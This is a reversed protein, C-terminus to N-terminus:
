FRFNLNKREKFRALWGNSGTFSDFGEIKAIDVAKKQIIPGNIPEGLEIRADIWELLMEELRAFPAARHTLLTSTPDKAYDDRLRQEDKIITHLSSMPIGYLLKLESQTKGLRWLDLIEIKKQLSLRTRSKPLSKINERRKFRALWGKSAIFDNDGLSKAIEEAKQKVIMEFIKEDNESQAKISDNETSHIWEALTQELKEEFPSRALKQSERLWKRQIDIERLRPENRILTDLAHPGISFYQCVEKRKKGEQLADLVQIKRTFSLGKRKIRPITAEQTGDPVFLPHPFLSGSGGNESSFGNEPMIAMDSCAMDTDMNLYPEMKEIVGIPPSHLSVAANSIIGSPVASSPGASSPGPSSSDPLGPSGPMASMGKPPIGPSPLEDGDDDSISEDVSEIKCVVSSRSKGVWRVADEADITSEDPTVVLKPRLGPWNADVELEIDTGSNFLTGQNYAQCLHDSGAFRRGEPTEILLFVKSELLHSMKLVNEMLVDSLTDTLNPQFNM